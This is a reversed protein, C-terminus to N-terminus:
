NNKHKWSNEKSSNNKITRHIPTLTVYIKILITYHMYSNEHHCENIIFMFHSINLCLLKFLNNRRFLIKTKLSSFFQIFLESISVM